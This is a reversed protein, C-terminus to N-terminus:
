QLYRLIRRNIQFSTKFKEIGDARMQPALEQLYYDMAQQDKLYYHVILQKKAIKEECSFLKAEIFGPLHLLEQIHADLWLFFESYIEPELQINVEYLIM